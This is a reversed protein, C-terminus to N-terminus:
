AATTEIAFVQGYAVPIDFARDLPLQRQHALLTRIVSAHAIIAVDQEGTKLASWFALVRKQLDLFSEGGPCRETVFNNGWYAAEPGLENWRRMEWEGFNLEMLRPDTQVESDPFIDRALQLCRQLPSSFCADLRRPLSRRVAELEQPYSAALPIDSQGYCVGPSVDPATHRILYIM